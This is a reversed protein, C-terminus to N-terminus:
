RVAIFRIKWRGNIEPRIATIQEAPRTKADIWGAIAATAEVMSLLVAAAPTRGLVGTTSGM